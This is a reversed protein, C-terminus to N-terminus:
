NALKPTGDANFMLTLEGGYSHINFWYMVDTESDVYIKNGSSIKNVKYKCTKSNYLKPTGDANVMLTLGGGYNHINFLYMVNTESDVYIKERSDIETVNYKSTKSNYIKPTGDANVMLTLGGDYGYVGFLYMVNTESDVYIKERSEIKTVKYKSTKSNYLKPTGDANVMLTLGVGYGHIDFLYMVNTESDVYIKEYSDIEAVKYKSTESNYLKPIGDANVMLTLTGSYGQVDFWYMVNTESDVYIRENSNIEAIDYMSNYKKTKSSESSCSCLAIILICAMFIIRAKKM